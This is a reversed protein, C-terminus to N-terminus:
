SPASTPPKPDAPEDAEALDSLVMIADLLIGATEMSNGQRFQQAEEEAWGTGAMLVFVEFEEILETEKGKYKGLSM